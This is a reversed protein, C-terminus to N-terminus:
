SEKFTTIVLPISKIIQTFRCHCQLTTASLKGLQGLVFNCFNCNTLIYLEPRYIGKRLVIIFAIQESSDLRMVNKMMLFWFLIGIYNKKLIKRHSLRKRQQISNKYRTDTFQTIQTIGIAETVSSSSIGTRSLLLLRFHAM